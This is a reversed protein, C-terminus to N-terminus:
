PHRANAWKAFKGADTGSFGYNKYYGIARIRGDFKTDYHNEGASVETSGATSGATVGAGGRATWTVGGDVSLQWDTTGSTSRRLLAVLRGSAAGLTVEISKLAGEYWFWRLVAPASSKSLLLHGRTNGDQTIGDGMYSTGSSSSIDDIDLVAVIMADNTSTDDLLENWTLIHAGGNEFMRLIDGNARVFDPVGEGDVDPSVGSNTARLSIVTDFPSPTVPGFRKAWVGISSGDLAYDPSDFFRTPIAPVSPDWYEYAVTNSTGGPTTVAITQAGAAHPDMTATIQGDNDVVFVSAHTIATAGTFGSGTLIRSEGGLTDGLDLDISTLVPAAPPTGAGIFAFPFKM